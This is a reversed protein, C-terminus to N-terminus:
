SSSIRLAYPFADVPFIRQDRLRGVILTICIVQLPHPECKLTQSNATRANM